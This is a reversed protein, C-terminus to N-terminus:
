KTALPRADASDFWVHQLFQCLVWSANKLVLAIGFTKCWDGNNCVLCKVGRTFGADKKRFFDTCTTNCWWNNAIHASNRVRSDSM